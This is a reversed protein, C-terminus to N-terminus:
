SSKYIDENRGGTVLNEAGCPAPFWERAPLRAQLRATGTVPVTHARNLEVDVPGDAAGSLLLEVGGAEVGSDVGSGADVSKDSKDFTSM